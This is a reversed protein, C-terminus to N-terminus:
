MVVLTLVLGDPTFFARVWTVVHTDWKSDNLVRQYMRSM